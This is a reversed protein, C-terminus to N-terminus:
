PAGVSNALRALLAPDNTWRRALTLAAERPWSPNIRQLREVEGIAAEPGQVRALFEVRSWGLTLHTPDLAAARDMAERAASVEGQRLRTWALDGWAEGWFPRWSVAAELDRRAWALRGDASRWGLARWELGRVRHGEALYPHRRLVDDLAIIRYQGPPQSRADALRWAGVARWGSLTALVILIGAWVATAARGGWPTPDSRPAAALGALSAFVLANAPIRLNFDILSHLALSGAGALAGIAMAKRVPDRGHRLRDRFGRASRWILWAALGLGVIGAEAFFEVVDGEAHTTRVEGHDRKFAPFADPYAGLGWGSFPRAIALRLTAAAIALRYEGSLDSPGKLVTALHARTGVPVV